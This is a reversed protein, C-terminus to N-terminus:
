PCYVLIVVMLPTWGQIPNGWLLKTAIVVLAYLFGGMAVGIGVVSMGRLPLYSHSLIGDIFYTVKRGLTWRSRGSKRERRVYELRKFPFGTWLIQGQLFMHAELNEMFAQKAKPGMLVFDFGGVPMQPFALRRMLTYFLRSTLVRFPSEERGARSAVVIQFGEVTYAALMGNILEPPDQGDASLTVTCEGRAHSMGAVIASVQGFNRTLKVVTVLGANERQLAVLEAYSNDGSGDDVFIVEFAKDAHRAFVASKLAELTTRLSGENFYVPVV